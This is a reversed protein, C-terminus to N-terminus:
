NDDESGKKKKFFILKIGFFIKPVSDTDFPKSGSETLRSRPGFQKCLNDASLSTAVLVSLTLVVSSNWCKTIM